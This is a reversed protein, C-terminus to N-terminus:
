QTEKKIHTYSVLLSNPQYDPLKRAQGSRPALFTKLLSHSRRGIRMLKKVNPQKLAQSSM